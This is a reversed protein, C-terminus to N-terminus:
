FVGKHGLDDHAQKMLELRKKYAPVVQHQGRPEQHWLEGNKLFFRAAYKILSNLDLNSMGPPRQQDELFKRVVELREDQQKGKETRPIEIDATADMGSAQSLVVQTETAESSRESRQEGVYPIWGLKPEVVAFSGVEDIWDEYDDEPELDENARPRRSLGDPGRHKEALVHILKFEFLLIGAIWRNITVNPQLDPNNIMGKIYKADVEV